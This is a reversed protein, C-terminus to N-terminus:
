SKLRLRGALLREVCRATQQWFGIRECPILAFQAKDRALLDLWGGEALVLMEEGVLSQEPVLINEAVWVLPGRVVLRGSIVLLMSGAEVLVRQAEGSGLELMTLRRAEM